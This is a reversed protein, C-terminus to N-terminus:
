AGANESFFLELEAIEAREHAFDDGLRRYLGAMAEYLQHEGLGEGAFGAIEDDGSGM